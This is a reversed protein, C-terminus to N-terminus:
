ISPPPNRDPRSLSESSAEYVALLRRAAAEWTFKKVQELGRGVLNERLSTDILLRHLADALAQSDAAPVLLAADGAVEPLSSNNSTM